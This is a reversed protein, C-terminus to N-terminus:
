IMEQRKRPRGGRQQLQNSTATVNLSASNSDMCVCDYSFPFHVDMQTQRDGPAGDKSTKVSTAEPFSPSCVQEPLTFTGKDEELKLLKFFSADSLM